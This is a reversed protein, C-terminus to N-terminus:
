SHLAENYGTCNGLQYTSCRILTSLEQVIIEMEDGLELWFTRLDDWWTHWNSGLNGM